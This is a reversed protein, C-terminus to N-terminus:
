QQLSNGINTLESDTMITEEAVYLSDEIEKNIKKLLTITKQYYESLIEDETFM